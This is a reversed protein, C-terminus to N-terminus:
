FFTYKGAVPILTQESPQVNLQIPSPDARPNTVIGVPQTNSMHLKETVSAAAALAHIGTMPSNSSTVMM